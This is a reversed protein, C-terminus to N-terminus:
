RYPRWENDPRGGIDNHGWLESLLADQMWSALNLRNLETGGRFRGAVLVYDEHFQDLLLPSHTALIVQKEKTATLSRVLAALLTISHPHLGLEPEDLLVVPPVLEPPQYLLTVLAIFRLLGDSLAAADFYNDSGTQRWELRIKDPNLKSPELIFDDFFPATLKIIGTIMGYRLSHGERLRYLYAALNSGDGRLFRNDHLDGTQRLPSHRGTDHFHYTRWYDLESRKAWKDGLAKLGAPSEYDEAHGVASAWDSSIRLGDAATPELAVRVGYGENDRVEFFMRGTTKAGGHLLRNAGGARGVYRDIAAAGQSVAQLFELAELLNSKGSGNAGILVNIPRLELGEISRFSKFGQITIKDIVPM